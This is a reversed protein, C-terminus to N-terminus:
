VVSKRDATGRRSWLARGCLHDVLSSAVLVGVFLPAGWSYFALSATLAVANRLRAPVAHYVVLVAPLFVCLFIISTFVM